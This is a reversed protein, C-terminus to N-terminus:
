VKVPVVFPARYDRTLMKNAEKDNKFAEKKVDIDLHRGLRYSTSKLDLGNAGLHEEFRGFTEYAEKNDGFSKSKTNFPELTGLRYSVNGLHCLASSLHGEEIDANLESVKRSRMCDIFNRHHDGGGKFEEIKNNDNDFVICNDYSPAVMYGKEGYWINGVKAGKLDPTDLGRVEFILQCDGYDMFALESNPTEGDDVYGFRGGLGVVTKPFEQKGLGWRAKDMEHIGQNGIDGNGTNWQWHWDYHFRKRMIPLKAAPGCWLDYDVTPPPNQPSDVKGISKRPKYCLGRALTIKGLKGEHLYKMGDQLGKHGRSQTGTQCIRKYKRAAEVIKRGEWINHSVPKEVYVDKGAQIAWIAALSHWYNGTAISVADISKDDFIRRMDQVTAPTKGSNKEVVRVAGGFTATDADCIYAIEVDKMASYSSVHDMGRGNVGIVAIRIKDNAGVKRGKDSRSDALLAGPVSVAGLALLSDELFRRRSIRDM